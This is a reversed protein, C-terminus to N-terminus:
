YIQSLYPKVDIPEIYRTVPVIPTDDYYVPQIYNDKMDPLRSMVQVCRNILVNSNIMNISNNINTYFFVIDELVERYTALNFWRSGFEIYNGSNFDDLFAGGREYFEKNFPNEKDYIKDKISIYGIQTNPAMNNEITISPYLSKYDFDDLNDMLNLIENLQKIKCMDSNNRPDGVLAGPYDIKIGLNVNNGIIFGRNYFEKRARNTLYVTQRHGKEYRTNNVMCKGYIYDIDNVSDEICKQVITDMINYFVFTKYDKYPLYKIQKTIHSYDLKRVGTIIEGATDLKFNPFAAQGKRRSAFHILQDLYVTKGTITYKDGRAEYENKHIEDIYYKAIKKDYIPECIIDAPDYGLVNIRDIIYPIDFAMNWVLLFDPSDNNIVKFLDRLLNIEEDYFRFDFTLKDLNFKRAKNVGVNNIIFDQLEKFLAPGIGNEFEEILKNNENRLLLINIRNDRDCIYSIANIPCEGDYTFDSSTYTGDTEIDLYAKEVPIITNTYEKDFRARYHDEINCDSSLISPHKHLQNLNRRNGSNICQYYFDIAENSDLHDAISKYLQTFKTSILETEEIPAFFLNYDEVFENKVKYYEYTPEYIIRYDKKGTKNDRFVIFIYDKDYKGTEENKKPYQYFLNILSIDSGEEYGSILM